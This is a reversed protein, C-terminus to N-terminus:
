LGPTGQRKAIIPVEPEGGGGVKAFQSGVLIDRYRRLWVAWVTM